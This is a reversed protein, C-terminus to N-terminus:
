THCLNFSCACDCHFFFMYYIYLMYMGMCGACLAGNECETRDSDCLSCPPGDPYPPISPVNGSPFYNCVMLFSGDWSSGLNTISDCRTWACGVYRTNSAVM